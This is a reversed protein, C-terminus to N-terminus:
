IIRATAQLLDIFEDENIVKIEVGKEIFEDAKREKSSRGTKGVVTKDQKGVVLFDTKSSVASRIKAGVDVVKQMADARAITELEGTFVIAKDFLPHEENFESKEPTIDTIKISQFRKGGKFTSDHKLEKFPRIPISSFTSFYTHISRRRKLKICTLVLEAVAKADSLANHHEDMIVGFRKARAELSNPIGEGRCARTTIPINCVYNFDPIDFNYTILCNKLVNMDFRANHAIIFTENHFYYSIENWVQDFTPADKIDDVTLGHINTMEPDMVDTPPKIVFYKQDIIKNNKVFILGLSCASNYNRNAIEFDIAIFDM